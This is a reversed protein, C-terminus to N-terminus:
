ALVPERRELVFDLGLRRNNWWLGLAYIWIVVGVLVLAGNTADGLIFCGRAVLALAFFTAPRALGRGIALERAFDDARRLHDATAPRGRTAVRMQLTRAALLVLLALAGVIAATREGLAMASAALVGAAIAAGIMRRRDQEMLYDGVSRPELRATRPGPSPRMHHLEAAMAGLAVGGLGFVLVDGQASTGILWFILGALGGINRAWRARLLWRALLRQQDRDRGLHAAIYGAEPDVGALMRVSHFLLYLVVTALGVVILLAPLSFVTGGTGGTGSRVILTTSVVFLL